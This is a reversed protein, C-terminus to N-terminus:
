ATAFHFEITDNVQALVTSPTFFSGESGVEIQFIIFCVLTLSSPSSVAVPCECSVNAAGTRSSCTELCHDSTIALGELPVHVDTALNFWLLPAM